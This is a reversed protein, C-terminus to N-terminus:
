YHPEVEASLPITRPPVRAPLGTCRAAPLRRDALRERIHIGRRVWDADNIRRCTTRDGVTKLCAAMAGVAFPIILAAHFSWGVYWVAPPGVLLADM